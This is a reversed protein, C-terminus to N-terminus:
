GSEPASFSTEKEPGLTTGLNTDEYLIGTLWSNRQRYLRRLYGDVWNDTFYKPLLDNFRMMEAAMGNDLYQLVKLKEKKYMHYGPNIYSWGYWLVATQLAIQPLVWAPNFLRLSRRNAETRMCLLPYVLLPFGISMGLRMKHYYLYDEIDADKLYVHRYARYIVWSREQEQLNDFPAERFEYKGFQYHFDKM